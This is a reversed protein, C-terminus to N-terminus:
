PQADPQQSPHAKKFADLQELAAVVKSIRPWQAIDLGFRNANFCQPLLVLDAMTVEDGFSYKGMTSGLKEEYATLGRTVFFQAWEMKKEEGVKKLVRLNQIPHTDSVILAVMARVKARAIPDKPLLPKEPVTEELFEMIASSQSLFDDNWQLTPVVGEPNKKLYEATMHEDKLLNVPVTEYPIGKYNLAIRIRWSATSRWYGYLVVKNNDSNSPM